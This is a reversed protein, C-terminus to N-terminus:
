SHSSFPCIYRVAISWRYVMQRLADCTLTSTNFTVVIHIHTKSCTPVTHNLTVEPQAAAAGTERSQATLDVNVLAGPVRAGVAGGAYVPDIVVGAGARRTVRAAVAVSVCVAARRLGAEVTPGAGVSRRPFGGAAAGGGVAAGLALVSIWSRDVSGAGVSAQLGTLLQVQHGDAQTNAQHGDQHEEAHRRHDYTVSVLLLALLLVRLCHVIEGLRLKLFLVKDRSNLELVCVLLHVHLHVTGCFLQIMFKDVVIVQVIFGGHPVLVFQGKQVFIFVTFLYYSVVRM